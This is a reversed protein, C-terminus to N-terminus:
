YGSLTSSYDSFLVPEGKCSMLQNKYGNIIKNIKEQRSVNFASLQGDCVVVPNTEYCQTESLYASKAQHFEISREIYAQEVESIISRIEDSCLDASGWRTKENLSNEIQTVISEDIENNLDDQSHLKESFKQETKLDMANYLLVWMDGRTMPIDLNNSNDVALWDTIWLEQAKEIYKQAFHSGTEDKTGDVIRILITIAQGNTILDKPMFKNNYWKILWLSCADKMTQVLDPRWQQLDTFSDCEFENNDLVLWQIEKAYQVFFKSAEDRRIPKDAMFNQTSDFITFNNAYMRSVATDVKSLALTFHICSIIVSFAIIAKKMSLILM